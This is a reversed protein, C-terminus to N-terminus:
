RGRGGGGGGGASRRGEEDATATSTSTPQAAASTKEVGSFIVGVEAGLENAVKGEGEANRQRKWGNM